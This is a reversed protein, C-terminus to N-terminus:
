GITPLTWPARYTPTVFADAEPDGEFRRRAPDWVLRRGTRHAINGLHALVAAERGAEVPCAPDERSKVSAIFDAAHLDHNGERGAQFPVPETRPGEDTTEARLEWGARNVVLTGREGVFAIGYGRDYPGSALRANHSWGLVFDDFAYRVALTDPTEITHDPYFIDGAAQVLRPAAEVQMAWLVIDLLHVGWDTMLGGGYDWTHRWNGHFRGPNFPREPAPGLWLDYDVGAPVPQDPVRASGRGYAFNGWVDVQGVRGLRGSQVLGVVEQWHAGSRQQQGVQVVRGYHRAAAVMLDCEAISNALPKEVYVDKEAACADVCQLCHWHDPTGVIVADIDAEDLMARYDRYLRPRTGTLREVEAAREHLVREDVDCLGGCVVDPLALHHQLDGFGMNRVGIGAVVVTDSPAARRRSRAASPLAAPVLGAVSAAALTAGSHHLFRRRSYRM